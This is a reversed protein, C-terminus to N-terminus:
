RVLSVSHTRPIVNSQGQNILTAVDMGPGNDKVTIRATPSNTTPLSIRVEPNELPAGSRIASLFADVPNDILEALCQWPELRIEGLMPLIRTSPTLDLTDAGATMNKM